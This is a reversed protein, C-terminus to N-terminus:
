ATAGIGNLNVYAAWTAAVTAVALVRYVLRSIRDMPILSMAEGGPVGTDAPVIVLRCRKCQWLVPIM